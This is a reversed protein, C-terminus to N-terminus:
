VASVADARFPLVQRLATDTLKYWAAIEARCAAATFRDLRTKTALEAPTSKIVALMSLGAQQCEQWSEGEISPFRIVATDAKLLAKYAAAAATNPIFQFAGGHANLLLVRQLGPAAELTGTLNDAAQRMKEVASTTVIVSLGVMNLEALRQDFGSATLVELRAQAQGGAWDVIVIGDSKAAQEIAAFLPQLVGVLGGPLERARKFDETAIFIDSRRYAQARRNGRSEIAVLVTKIGYRDCYHRIRWATTTKGVATGDASLEIVQPLGSGTLKMSPTDSM